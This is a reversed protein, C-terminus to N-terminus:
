ESPQKKQRSECSERLDVIRLYSLLIFNTYNGENCNSCCQCVFPRSLFFIETLVVPPSISRRFTRRIWNSPSRIGNSKLQNPATPSPDHLMLLLDLSCNLRYGSSWAPRLRNPPFRSIVFAM